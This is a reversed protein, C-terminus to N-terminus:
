TKAKGYSANFGGEAALPIGPLYRPERTMQELVWKLGEEAEREPAVCVIEDHSMHVIRYRKQVRLMGDAIVLRAVAQVINEVVKSGYLARVRELGYVWKGADVRLEDYRIAMDNPLFIHSIHREAKFTLGKFETEKGPVGLCEKLLIDCTKWLKPVATATARYRDIIMKTAICHYLMEERTCTHPITLAVEKNPRGKYKGQLFAEADDVSGGMALLFDRDYRQPPAGQFGGLLQAAMNPWGIGFGAGLLLSKSAQRLLPTEEKTVPRGFVQTGFAAYPDAGTRFLALLAEYGAYWALIRPEIQALDGVLLVCGPPALIAERLFSGRKLNQPNIGQRAAAWRGTGAGYYNLPIPLSGRSAIDLFRQARTRELTSKVKLRAQCLLAVEEQDSNLLAQFEVDTKAFATTLTGNTKSKKMPISAGMATLLLAFKPNSALDAETTNTRQLIDALKADDEAKAKELLPVDLQLMPDVYMQLTLDILALEKKPFVRAPEYANMYLHTFILECLDVDHCCYLALAQEVSPQLIHGAGKTQTIANGKPPLGFREALKNLSNGQEVGYIARAMSLSDFIFKPKCGYAWSLIAVDFAANHALVATSSWDVAKFLFDPLADHPIWRTGNEGFRKWGVGYAYFRPDRVYEETTMKSLTYDDDWVTEFDVVVINIDAPTM